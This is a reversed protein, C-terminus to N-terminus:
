GDAVKQALALGFWDEGPEHAVELLRRHREYAVLVADMLPNPEVPFFLAPMLAQYREGIWLLGALEVLLDCRGRGAATIPLFTDFRIFPLGADFDGVFCGSPGPSWCRGSAM